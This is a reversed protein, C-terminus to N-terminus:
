RRITMCIMADRETFDIHDYGKITGMTLIREAADAM